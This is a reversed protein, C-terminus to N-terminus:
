KTREPSPVDLVPCSSRCLEIKASKEVQRRCCNEILQFVALNSSNDISEIGKCWGVEHSLVSKPSNRRDITAIGM